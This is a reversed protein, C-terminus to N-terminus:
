RPRLDAPVKHYISNVHKKLTAISIFLLNAIERNSYGRLLLSAIKFESPTLNFKSYKELCNAIQDDLPYLMTTLQGEVESIMVDAVREERTRVRKFLNFGMGGKAQSQYFMRLCFQDCVEGCTGVVVKNRELITGGQDKVCVGIRKKIKLTHM